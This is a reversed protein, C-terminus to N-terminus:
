HLMAEIATFILGMAIWGCMVGLTGVSAGVLVPKEMRLYRGAAWTWWVASLGVPVGAAVILTVLSGLMDDREPSLGVFGLVTGVFAHLREAIVVIDLGFAFGLVTALSVFGATAIVGLGVLRLLHAIRVKARRRAIPLVIFAVVSLPIGFALLFTVGVSALVPEFLAQYRLAPPVVRFPVEGTTRIRAIVAPSLDAPGWVEFDANYWDDGSIIIDVGADTTIVTLSGDWPIVVSNRNSGYLTAYTPRNEIAVARELRDDGFQAARVQSPDWAVSASQPADPVSEWWSVPTRAVPSLGAVMATRFPAGQALYTGAVWAACVFAPLLVALAVAGGLLPPRIRHELRLRSLMARPRFMAFVLQLPVRVCWSSLSTAGEVAWKPPTLHGADLEKWQFSLGCEPCTGEPGHRPMGRLDHGCRPCM